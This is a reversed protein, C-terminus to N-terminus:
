SSSTGMRAAIYFCDHDGWDIAHSMLVWYGPPRSGERAARWDGASVTVAFHARGLPDAPAGPEALTLLGPRAFLALLTDGCRLLM